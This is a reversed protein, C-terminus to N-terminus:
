RNISRTRRSSGGRSPVRTGGDRDVQLCDDALRDAALRCPPIGPGRIQGVVEASGLLSPRDLRTADRERLSEGAPAAAIGPDGSEGGRDEGAEHQPGDQARHLRNAGGPGFGRYAELAVPGLGLRLDRLRDLLEQLPVQQGLGAGVVLGREAGPGVGIQLDPSGEVAGGPGDAVSEHLLREDFRRDAQGDAVRVGLEAEISLRERVELPGQVQVLTSPRSWGSVNRAM